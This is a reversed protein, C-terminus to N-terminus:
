ETSHDYPAPPLSNAVVASPSDLLKGAFEPVESDLNGFISLWCERFHYIRVYRKKM